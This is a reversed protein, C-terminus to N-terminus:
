RSVQCAANGDIIARLAPLAGQQLWSASSVSDYRGSDCCSSPLRPMLLRLAGSALLESQLALPTRVPILAGVHTSMEM